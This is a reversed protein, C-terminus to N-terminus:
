QTPATVTATNDSVPGVNALECGDLSIVVESFKTSMGDIRCRVTVQQGKGLAFVQKQMDGAFWAMFATSKDGAVPYLVAVLGDKVGPYHVADGVAGTWEVPVGKLEKNAREQNAVFQRRAEPWDVTKEEPKQECGLLALTAASGIRRLLTM